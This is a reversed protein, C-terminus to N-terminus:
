PDMRVVIGDPCAIWEKGVAIYRDAPCKWQPHDLVHYRGDDAQAMITFGEAHAQKLKAYPDDGRADHFGPHTCKDEECECYPSRCPKTM